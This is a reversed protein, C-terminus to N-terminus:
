LMEIMQQHLYSCFRTGLICYTVGSGEQKQISVLEMLIDNVTKPPERQPSVPDAALPKRLGNEKEQEPGIEPAQQSQPEGRDAGAAFLLRVPLITRTPKSKTFALPLFGFSLGVYLFAVLLFLVSRASYPM